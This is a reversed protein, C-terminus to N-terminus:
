ERNVDTSHFVYVQIELKALVAADPGLLGDLEIFLLMKFTCEIASARVADSEVNPFSM